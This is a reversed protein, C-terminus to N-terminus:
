DTAPHGMFKKYSPCLRRLACRSCRPRQASCTRRGHEIMLVHFDYVNDGSVLGELIRHADQLTANPALLGLRKAVRFIHTDVPLAPKGLAFLLVCNATKDGVGPLGKLWERAQELPLEGLFDLDLKGRKQQIETLAQKIRNAKIWGLGSGRIVSAIEDVDAAVLEKWRGFASMLKDFAPVSNADSTNQSLITRVLVSLPDHSPRWRSSGYESGLLSIIQKVNTRSVLFINYM